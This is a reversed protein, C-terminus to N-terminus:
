VCSKCCIGKCVSAKCASAKVCLLWGALWGAMALTMAVDQGSALGALRALWTLLGQKRGRRSCSSLRRFASLQEISLSIIAVSISFFFSLFLYASSSLSISMSLLLIDRDVTRFVLKPSIKLFDEQPCPICSEM